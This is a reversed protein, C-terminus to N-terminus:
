RFRRCCAKPGIRLNVRKLATFHASWIWISGCRWNKTSPRISRFIHLHVTTGPLIGKLIKQFASYRRSQPAKEQATLESWDLWNGKESKWFFMPSCKKRSTYGAQEISAELLNTLVWEGGFNVVFYFLFTEKVMIINLRFVYYDLLSPQGVRFQFFNIPTIGLNM